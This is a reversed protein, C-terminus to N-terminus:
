RPKLSPSTLLLSGAMAVQGKPWARIGKSVRGALAVRVPLRKNELPPKRGYGIPSGLPTLDTILNDEMNYPM